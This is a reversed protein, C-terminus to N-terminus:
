PWDRTPTFFSGGTDVALKWFLAAAMPDGEMPFLITNVPIGDPLAKIAQEYLKVREEGSVTNKGPKKAGQTPLGDTLLLINDPKPSLHAAILLPKLLNTGGTPVLQQLRSIMQDIASRDTAAVWKGASEPLLADTQINFTYIQIQAEAPLNAVLWEVTKRAQQWKPSGIKTRDDLIRRRIVDVITRDLMSASADVLLLIRKGGLKLGTLYQRNGEGVFQRVKDGQQAQAQLDRSLQKNSKEMAPLDAQLQNIHAKNAASEKDLNALEAETDRLRTLIIESDGEITTIEENTRTLSNQQEFLYKEGILVEHELRMIEARLDAHQEHRTSVTDANVLLVLLIVAGFGCCMIDLFALNFPTLNRRRLAM